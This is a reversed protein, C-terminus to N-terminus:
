GGKAEKIKEIEQVLLDYQLWSFRTREYDMAMDEAQRIVEDYFEKGDRFRFTNESEEGKIIVVNIDDVIQGPVSQTMVVEKDFSPYIM